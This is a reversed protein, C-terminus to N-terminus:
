VQPRRLRRLGEPEDCHTCASIAEQISTRASEAGACFLRSERALSACAPQYKWLHTAERIYGNCYALRDLDSSTCLQALESALRGTDAKEFAQDLPDALCASSLLVFNISALVQKLDMAKGEHRM